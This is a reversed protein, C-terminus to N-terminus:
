AYITFIGNNYQSAWNVKKLSMKQIIQLILIGTLIVESDLLVTKFM